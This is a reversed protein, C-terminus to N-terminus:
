NYGIYLNPDDPESESAEDPPESLTVVRAQITAHMIKIAQTQFVPNNFSQLYKKVNQLFIESFKAIALNKIFKESEPILPSNAMGFNLEKPQAPKLTSFAAQFKVRKENNIIEQPYVKFITACSEVEIPPPKFNFVIGPQIAKMEEATINFIQCLPKIIKFGIIRKMGEANIFDKYQIKPSTSMESVFIFPESQKQNKIASDIYDQLNQQLNFDEYKESEYIFAEHHLKLNEVTLAKLPLACYVMHILTLSLISSQHVTRDIQPLDTFTSFRRSFDNPMPFLFADKEKSPHILVLKNLSVLQHQFAGSQKIFEMSLVEKEQFTIMRSLKKPFFIDDISNTALEQVKSVTFKNYFWKPVHNELLISNLDKAQNCCQTELAYTNLSKISKNFWLNATTGYVASKNQVNAKFLEQNETLVSSLTKTKILESQAGMKLEIKQPDINQTIAASIVQEKVDSIVSNKSAAVDLSSVVARARQLRNLDQIPKSIPVEDSRVLGPQLRGDLGVLIILSMGTETLEPPVLVRHETLEKLTINRTKGSPPGGGGTLTSRNVLKNRRTTM